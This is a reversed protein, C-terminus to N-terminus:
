PAGDPEISSLSPGSWQLRGDRETEVLGELELALLQLALESAAWGLRRGLEDRTLPGHTHLARAVPWGAVPVRVLGAPASRAPDHGIATFVDEPELVPAAGERLLANSGEWAPAEVAGPVVLVERGQDLAHRATVLSGSRRRAEVVVVARAIGSILRNRLPFYPSRPPTGLPMETMVLGHEAVREALGRHEAPYMRDPGCALVAVTGARAELAGSHAAADIGRALGSVVVVGASSLARALRAAFRRGQRSAARSGVIAVAPEALRLVDGRVALALPADALARLSPPYASSTWPLLAFGARALRAPADAPAPPLEAAARREDPHAAWHARGDVPELAFRRQLRLWALLREHTAPDGPRLVDHM